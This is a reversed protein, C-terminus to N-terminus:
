QMGMEMKHVYEQILMYVRGLREPRSNIFMNNSTPQCPTLHCPVVSAHVTEWAM